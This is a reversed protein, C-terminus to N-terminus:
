RGGDGDGGGLARQVVNLKAGTERWEAAPESGLVLGAGAFLHARSGVVWASRIAVVAEAEGDPEAWGVVGGYYGRGFPEERRIWALAQDQPEGALAPTPHLGKLLRYFASPDPAAAEVTAVLHTFSGQRLEGIETHRPVLGLARFSRDVYDEVVAQERREKDRWPVAAGDLRTGALCATSLRGQRYSMLLEPSAGVFDGGALRWSWVAAGPNQQALRAVTGPVDVPRDFSLDLRRALVAKEIRGASIAETTRRVQESWSRRGPVSRRHLLRTSSPLTGDPEPWGAPAPLWRQPVLVVGPPLGSWLDQCADPQFALSFAARQGPAALMAESCAAELDEFRKLWRLERVGLGLAGGGRGPRLFVASSAEQYARWAAQWSQQSTSVPPPALAPAALSHGNM